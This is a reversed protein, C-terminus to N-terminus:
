SSLANKMKFLSRKSGSGTKTHYPGGGNGGNSDGNDSHKFQTRFHVKGSGCNVVTEGVNGSDDVVLLNEGLKEDSGLFSHDKVTVLFQQDATCNVTFSEDWHIEGGGSKIRLERGVLETVGEGGMEEVVPGVQAAHLFQEAV